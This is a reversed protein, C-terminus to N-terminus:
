LKVVLTRAFILGENSVKFETKITKYLYHFFNHKQKVASGTWQSRKTSIGYVNSMTNVAFLSYVIKRTLYKLSMEVTM